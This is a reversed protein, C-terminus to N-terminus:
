INEESPFLSNRSMLVMRQVPPLSDAFCGPRTGGGGLEAYSGEEGGEGCV